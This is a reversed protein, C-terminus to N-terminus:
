PIKSFYTYFNEISSILTLFDTMSDEEESSAKPMNMPFDPQTNDFTVDNDKLVLQDNDGQCALIVFMKPIEKLDKCRGLKYKLGEIPVAKLDVGYVLGKSGHSLICVVLSGYKVLDNKAKAQLQAPDLYHIIQDGRLNKLIIVELGFRTFTRWLQACDNDPM